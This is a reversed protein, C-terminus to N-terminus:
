QFMPDICRKGDDARECRERVLRHVTEVLEDLSFPKPLFVSRAIQSQADGFTEEAYGSVFVVPIDPHDALAKQVWGPGDLGPMVVDTVFVDISFKGDALIELAEEASGAEVVSYGRLQLARSAFARVPIEDEVLLVTGQGRSGADRTAEHEVRVAEHHAHAPFLLRFTTGCGETSDVFIFGGSQKVIGYVTSLGLGTGKGVGKTTFFPEFVKDIRDPAIGTGGDIVEVSVYRGSAVEARDRRLPEDITMNQTVIRIEGGEPMADRSNVVLNMIVQEFQRKDARIADLGPDNSLVLTTREGVLRNLLHTLDSLTDRLDLIRPHMTQKRSYALLQGVLAAARNANQTIQTLDAYDHDGPDHRLLLLDCHGTIATLLNNFDHAIGGALQGIAQMKQSQAFQAELSKLETADTIVAILVTDGGDRARNLVVQVFNESDTRRVRLFEPRVTGRGAAADAIWESVPRGLGELMESLRLGATQKCGLLARAPENSLKIQGEKDLKLLPVPLHDFFAWGDVAAPDAEVGPLLYVERRGAIGVREVYLCNIPGDPTTVSCMTGSRFAHVGCAEDLSRIRTGVLNRAASNMYLVTDNRGLTVMPLTHAEADKLPLDASKEIRWMFLAAGARHVCVRMHGARTVIDEQASGTLAARSEMRFLLPGPNALQERLVAALTKHLQTAFLQRAIYNAFLITGDPGSLLLPQPDHEMLAAADSLLSVGRRRARLRIWLLWLAVCSLVAGVALLLAQAQGDGILVGTAVFVVASLGVVGARPALRDGARHWNGESTTLFAVQRAKREM